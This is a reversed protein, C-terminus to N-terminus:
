GAGQEVVLNSRSSTIAGGRRRWRWGGDRRSPVCPRNVTTVTLSSGFLLEDSGRFTRDGKCYFKGSVFVLYRRFIAKDERQPLEVRVYNKM